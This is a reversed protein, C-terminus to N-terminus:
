NILDNATEASLLLGASLIEEEVNSPTESNLTLLNRLYGYSEFDIQSIQIAVGSDLSRVVSGTGRITPGAANQDLAIEFKCQSLRPLPADLMLCLGNWSINQLVGSRTEGDEGTVTAPIQPSVRTYRRRNM